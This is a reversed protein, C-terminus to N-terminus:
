KPFNVLDRLVAADRYQRDAVEQYEDGQKKVMGACKSLYERFQVLAPGRLNNLIRKCGKIDIRTSGTGNADRDELDFFWSFTLGDQEGSFEASTAMSLRYSCGPVCSTAIHWPPEADKRFLHVKTQGLAKLASANAIAKEYTMETNV